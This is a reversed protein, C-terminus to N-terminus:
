LNDAWVRLWYGVYKLFVDFMRDSCGLWLSGAIEIKKRCKNNGVKEIGVLVLARLM